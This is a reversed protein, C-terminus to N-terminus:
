NPRQLWILLLFLGLSVSARGRECGADVCLVVGDEGGNGGGHLAAVDGGCMEMMVVAMAMNSGQLKSRMAIPLM